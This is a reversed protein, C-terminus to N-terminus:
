VYLNVWIILIGQHDLCRHIVKLHGYFVPLLALTEIVDHM